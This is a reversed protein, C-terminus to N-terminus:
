NGRNKSTVIKIKCEVTVTNRNFSRLIKFNKAKKRSLMEMRPIATGVVSKNRKKSDHIIIDQKNTPFTKDTILQQNRLIIVVLWDLECSWATRLAPM